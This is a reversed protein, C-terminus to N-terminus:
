IGLADFFRKIGRNKIKNELKMAESKTDLKSFWIINWDKSQRTYKSKGSNHELIRKQIDSTHGSYFKNLVNSFLIYTYFM